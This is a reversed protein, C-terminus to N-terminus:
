AAMPYGDPGEVYDPREPGHYHDWLGGLLTDCDPCVHADEDGRRSNPHEWVCGCGDCQHKHKGDDVDDEMGFVLEPDVGLLLLAVAFRNNANM